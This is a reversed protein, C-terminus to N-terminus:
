FAGIGVVWSALLLLGVAYILDAWLRSLLNVVYIVVVVPIGLLVVPSGRWEARSRSWLTNADGTSPFSHMGVSIGLWFLVLGTTGAASPEVGDGGNAAIATALGLFLAFAVLTNVLFPAVSIAFTERYREPELHQVYGAPSGLRFYAVDLVPVGVYDCAKKHAFEHVVVGPFTLLQVFFGIFALALM